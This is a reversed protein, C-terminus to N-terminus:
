VSYITPLTLHTYSVPGSIDGQLGSLGGIGCAFRRRMEREPDENGEQNAGETRAEGRSDAAALPVM